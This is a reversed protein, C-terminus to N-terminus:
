FTSKINKEFNKIREIVDIMALIDNTTYNDKLSM